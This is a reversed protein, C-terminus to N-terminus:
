PAKGVVVIADNDVVGKTPIPANKNTATCHHCGTVEDEDNGGWKTALTTTTLATVNDGGVASVPLPGAGNAPSSPTVVGGRELARAKADAKVNVEAEAKAEAVGNNAGEAEVAKSKKSKAPTCTSKCKCTTAAM